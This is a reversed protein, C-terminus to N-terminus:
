APDNPKIAYFRYVRLGAAFAQMRRAWIEIENLVNVKTANDMSYHALHQTFANLGHLILGRQTETMDEAIRLDLNRHIFADSADQARWLFPEQLEREAWKKLKALDAQADLVYDTLVVQGRPKLQAALTDFFQDKDAVTFLAERSILADVRKDYVFKEPDYLRVPARKALDVEASREMGLKALLPTAELGTTWCGFKTAVARCFGGLGAGVELVSMAPNLGLPRVLYLAHEEGGPTTFGKGWLTEAVQVRDASWLPKGHRDLGPGAVPPPPAAEAPAAAGEEPAKADYGEWWAHFRSRLGPKKSPPSGAGSM